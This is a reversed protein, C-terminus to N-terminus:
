YVKHYAVRPSGDELLIVGCHIFGCKLLAKQMLFNDEHTDIRINHITPFLQEVAEFCKTAIGQKTKTQLTAMRHIVVHDQDNLWAGEIQDYTPEHKTTALVTAVVDDGDKLIYSDGNKIDQTLTDINPYGNQWQDIKNNRLAIKAQDYIEIIQTCDGLTAKVLKM